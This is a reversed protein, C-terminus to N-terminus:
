VSSESLEIVVEVKDPLIKCLAPSPWSKYTEHLFPSISTQARGNGFSLSLEHPVQSGSLQCEPARSLCFLNFQSGM